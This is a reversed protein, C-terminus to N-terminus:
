ELLLKDSDVYMANTLLEPEKNPLSEIIDHYLREKRNKSRRCYESVLEQQIKEQETM